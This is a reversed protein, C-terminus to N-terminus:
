ELEGRVIVFVQRAESTNTNKVHVIVREASSIDEIFEDEIVNNDGLYVGRYPAIKQIGRFISVELEGFTAAPFALYVSKTKFKTAEDVTYIVVDEETDADVTILKAISIKKGM